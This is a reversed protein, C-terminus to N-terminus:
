DVLSLIWNISNVVNLTVASESQPAVRTEYIIKNSNLFTIYYIEIIDVIIPDKIQWHISILNNPFDIILRVKNCYLFLVSVFNLTCMRFRLNKFEFNKNINM